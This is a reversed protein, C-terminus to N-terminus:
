ENNDNGSIILDKRRETKRTCRRICAYFVVLVLMFGCVGTFIPTIGLTRIAYSMDPMDLRIFTIPQVYNEVYHSTLQKGDDFCKKLKHLVDHQSDIHHGYIYLYQDFEQYIYKTFRLDNGLIRHQFWAAVNYDILTAYVERNQVKELAEEYNSVM